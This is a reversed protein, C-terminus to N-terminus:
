KQIVTKLGLKETFKVILRRIYAYWHKQEHTLLHKIESKFHISALDSYWQQINIMLLLMMITAFYDKADM